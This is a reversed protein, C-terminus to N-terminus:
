TRRPMPWNLRLLQSPRPSSRRLACNPSRRLPDLLQLGARICPRSPRVAARRKVALVVALLGAALLAFTGPEPVSVRMSTIEYNDFFFLDPYGNNSSFSGTTTAGNAFWNVPQDLDLGLTSFMNSAAGNADTTSLSMIPFYEGAHANILGLSYSNTSGQFNKQISVDQEIYGGLNPGPYTLLDVCTTISCVNGSIQLPDDGLSLARQYLYTSGDSNSFVHRTGAAPDLTMSGTITSGVPDMGTLVIGTFSFTMLEASATGSLLMATLVLAIKKM